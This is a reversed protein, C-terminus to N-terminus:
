AADGTSHVDVVPRLLRETLSVGILNSLLELFKRLLAGNIAVVTDSTQQSLTSQLAALDIRDTTSEHPATLWPHDARILHVSRGFLAAVGRHGIIPALAADIDRWVSVVKTTLSVTDWGASACKSLSSQIQQAAGLM